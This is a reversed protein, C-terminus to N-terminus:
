KGRLDPSIRSAGVWGITMWLPQAVGAYTTFEATIGMMVFVVAYTLGIVGIPTWVPSRRM